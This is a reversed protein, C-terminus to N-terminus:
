ARGKGKSKMPQAIEHIADDMASEEPDSDPLEALREEVQERMLITAATECEIAERELAFLEIRASM